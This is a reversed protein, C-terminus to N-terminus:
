ILYTGSPPNSTSFRNSAEETEPDIELVHKGSPVYKRLREWSWGLTGTAIVVALAL